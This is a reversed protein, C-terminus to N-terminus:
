QANSLWGCQQGEIRRLYVTNAKKYGFKKLSLHTVNRHCILSLRHCKLSM